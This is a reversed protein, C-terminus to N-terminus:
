KLTKPLIENIISIYKQVTLHPISHNELLDPVFKAIEHIFEINKFKLLSLNRDWIKRISELNGSLMDYTSEKINKMCDLYKLCIKKVQRNSHLISIGELLYVISTSNKYYWILTVAACNQLGYSMSSFRRNLELVM